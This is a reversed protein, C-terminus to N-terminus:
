APQHALLESKRSKVLPRCFLYVVALRLLCAVPWLYKFGGWPMLLSAIRGGLFVGTAAALGMCALYVAFYAGNKGPPTVRFLMTSQALALGSWAIGSAIYDFPAYYHITTSNVLAYFAPTIGILHGVIWLTPAPDGDRDVKRGWYRAALFNAIAYIMTWLAIRDMPVKLSKTFYYPFYPAAMFVAGNFLAAFSIFRRFKADRLAELIMVGVPRGETVTGKAPAGQPEATKEPWTEPVKALLWTSLTASLVAILCLIGAGFRFGQPRWGIWAATVLNAAVVAAMSFRQKIGFFRGQSEVPILGRVWSQWAVGSSNALLATVFASGALTLIWRNVPFAEGYQQQRFGYYAALLLPFLWLSRAIAALILTYRKMSTSREIFWLSGLQGVQGMWPLASLLAVLGVSVGLEGALASLYTPGVITDYAIAFAGEWWLLQFARLLGAPAELTPRSRWM